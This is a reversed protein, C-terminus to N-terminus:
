VNIIRGNQDLEVAELINICVLNSNAVRITKTMHFHGYLWLRPKHFDWCKQLLEQTPTTFTDPDYGFYKLVEPKGITKAVWTPCTHTIMLDPKAKKYAEYAEDMQGPTLHEEEWWSKGHGRCEAKVRAVKDISFAGRIFFFEVGGHKYEGFDGIAHPTKHYDWYNDHNGGFFKHNKPYVSELRSYDFGMDGLQLTKQYKKTIDTYEYFKGHVDGIVALATKVM